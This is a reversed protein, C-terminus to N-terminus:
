TEILLTKVGAISGDPAQGLAYVTIEVEGCRYVQLQCLSHILLNKLKQLRLRQDKDAETHWGRPSTAREFFSEINVVQIEIDDALNFLRRILSRDITELDSTEWVVEIPYDSESSWWLDNCAGQLQAKLQDATM